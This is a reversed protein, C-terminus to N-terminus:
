SSEGRAREEEREPIRGPQRAQRSEREFEEFLEKQRRSLKTPTVVKVVIHQEGRGRGSLEPLGHRKLRFVTGTQTGQPVKITQTGDLTPVEVEAGLAAQAFGVEKECVIDRGRREFVEHPAVHVLLYLDGREGGLRGADGGYSVRIRTGNEVGPPIKFSKEVIKSVRGDGRCAKCPNSIVRGTGRCAGCGSVTSFSGLMTRRSTRIQGTGGCRPCEVPGGSEGHGTGVCERCPELRSFRVVKETGFAVEELTVEVEAPVDGGRTAVEERRGRNPGSGFFAEFLDGFGGFLDDAFGFGDSVVRDVGEPGYRDYRARTGPNSLVQYAENIEKFAESAEPTRNVDPHSERALLRYARRIEDSSAHPDVGLIEYYDRKRSM